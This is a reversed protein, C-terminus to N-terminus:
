DGDYMRLNVYPSLYDAVSEMPLNGADDEEESPIVDVIPYGKLTDRLSKRAANGGHGHDYFTVIETSDALRRIKEKSLGSTFSAAVNPYVRLISTYDFPGECLVVPQDLDLLNEGMWCHMNRHNQYGYQFYRLDNHPIAEISRGQMGMLRHKFDRFPFGIRKQIPDYRLELQEIMKDTVGRGKVYALADPFKHLKNFSALWNEPFVIEKKAVPEEYSPISGMDFELESFEHAILQMAGAIHYGIEPSKRQYEQIKLALDRLDGGFGCSLCKCISKKQDSAKIAFSAHKDKGGHRWPGLPCHGEIWSGRNGTVKSNLHPLLAAIRERNM